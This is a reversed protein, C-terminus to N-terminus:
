KEWFPSLGPRQMMYYSKIARTQLIKCLYVEMKKNKMYYLLSLLVESTWKVLHSGKVFGTLYVVSVSFPKQGAKYIFCSGCAIRYLSLWWRVRCVCGLCSVFTGLM